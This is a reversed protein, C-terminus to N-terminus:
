VPLRGDVNQTITFQSWTNTIIDDARNIITGPINNALLAMGTIAGQYTASKM